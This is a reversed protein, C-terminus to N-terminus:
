PMDFRTEDVLKLALARNKAVETLSVEDIKYEGWSAVLESPAVAHNVPYEMNLEAYMRQAKESSLYEMLQVANERNPAYKALLMASVNVHTGRGKQNPFVIKVAEAWSKQNPDQLMKGYYYSNGLSYECLGEKIARVQARDNGQPKRALNEKLAILWKKTEVEGHHTIMSAILAINYPHKASRMCVKGKYEKLALQEYSLAETDALEKKVFFSRARTTLAFWRGETDRLSQPVNENIIESDLSQVLGRDVFEMVRSIDVTLIVDAPSYRGERAVREELGKDSFIVNVKVGTDKEFAKLIPNILFPQRYSYVNVEMSRKNEAYVIGFSCILSIFLAFRTTFYQYM